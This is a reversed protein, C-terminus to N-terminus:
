RTPLVVELRDIYLQALEATQAQILLHHVRDGAGVLPHHASDVVDRLPFRVRFWGDKITLPIHWQGMHPVGPQGDVQRNRGDDQFYFGAWRTAQNLWVDCVVEADPAYAFLGDAASAFRVAVVPTDARDAVLCPRGDPARGRHGTVPSMAQPGGASWSWLPAATLRLGGRDALARGGAGVLVEQGDAEMRVRGHEVILRTAGAASDFVFGTGVVTALAEPSRITLPRGTPQPAAQVALRGATLRLSKGATEPLVTLHSGALVEARTGDAWTLVADQDSTIEAGVAMARAQGAIALTPLDHAHGVGHVMSLWAGGLLLLLGAAVALMRGGTRRRSRRLRLRQSHVIRQRVRAAFDPPENQARVVTAVGAVFARGAEADDLRNRLLGDVALDALLVARLREDDALAARLAASEAVSLTGGDLHLTWAALVDQRTM